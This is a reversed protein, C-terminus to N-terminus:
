RPDQGDDRLKHNANSKDRTSEDRGWERNSGPRRKAWVAALVTIGVYIVAAPALRPQPIVVDRLWSWRDANRVQADVRGARGASRMAANGRRVRGLRRILDGTRLPTAITTTVTDVVLKEDSAFLSDLFLDDAIMDPFRDFRRRGEESLAIMGRGFLGDNFAPLRAQINFYSRVLLPRGVLDLERKPVAAMPASALTTPAGLLARCLRRVDEAAAIIDADLYIRPFGNAAADGVNLAAAKSAIAIEIVRVSQHRRAITATEDSCGNPVVIVAFEGSQRDTLLASLCRGIVAAENHAAIIITANM